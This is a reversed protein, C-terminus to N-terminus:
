KKIYIECYGKEIDTKEGLYQVDESNETEVMLSCVYRDKPINKFYDIPPVYLKKCFRCNECNERM